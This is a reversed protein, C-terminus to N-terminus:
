AIKLIGTANFTIKYTGATSSKTGGFDFECILLDSVTTNFLKAYAASITASSWTPDDTNDWTAWNNGDDDAVTNNAATLAVGRQTYNGTAAHENTNNYTTDDAAGASTFLACNVVDSGAGHLDMEKSMIARFFNHYIFDAM